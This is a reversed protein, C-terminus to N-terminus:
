KVPQRIVIKRKEPATRKPDNLYIEHYCGNPTLNHTPLFEKYLSNCINGIESYDGMHMIQVCKGEKLTEVRLTDPAPGRKKEVEAVAEDIQEQTIWDVFVVMMRWNIKDKDGYVFDIGDDTWSLCELPPEAFNKGMRAKVAPKVVRVISYLWKVAAEAEEGGPNGTGDIAVYRIEPVDILTFVKEPPLYLEKLRKHFEDVNM